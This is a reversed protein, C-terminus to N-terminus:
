RVLFTTSAAFVLELIVNVTVCFFQLVKPATGRFRYSDKRLTAFIPAFTTFGSLTTKLFFWILGMIWRASPSNVDGYNLSLLPAEHLNFILMTLYFVLQISSELHIMKLAANVAEERSEVFKKVTAKEEESLEEFKPYKKSKQCLKLKSEDIECPVQLKIFESTPKM